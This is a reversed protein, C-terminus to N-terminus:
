ACSVRWKRRMTPVVGAGGLAGLLGAMEDKRVVSVYLETKGDRVGLPQWDWVVESLDFPIQSEVEFGVTQEIRRPDSFPLTVVHSAADRADLRLAARHRM